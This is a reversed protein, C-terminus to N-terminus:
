FRIVSELSQLLRAQLSGGTLGRCTFNMTVRGAKWLVLSISEALMTQSPQIMNVSGVGTPERLWGAWLDPLLVRGRPDLKVMTALLEFLAQSRCVQAVACGCFATCAKQVGDAVYVCVPVCPRRQLRM